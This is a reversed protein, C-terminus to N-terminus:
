GKIGEINSSSPTTTSKVKDLLVKTGNSVNKMANRTQSGIIGDVLLKQGHDTNIKNQFIKVAEKTLEDYSSNNAKSAPLLGLYVFFNNLAIAVYPNIRSGVRIIERSTFFDEEDLDASAKLLNEFRKIKDSTEQTKKNKEAEQTKLSVVDEVNINFNILRFSLISLLSAYMVQLSPIFINKIDNENVVRNIIISSVETLFQSYMENDTLYDRNDKFLAISPNAPFDVKGDGIRNIKQYDKGFEIVIKKGFSFKSTIVYEFFGALRDYVDTSKILDSFKFPSSIFNKPTISVYDEEVEKLEMADIEEYVSKLSQGKADNTLSETAGKILDIMKLSSLSTLTKRLINLKEETKFDVGKSANLFIESIKPYISSINDPGSISLIAKRVEEPTKSKNADALIQTNIKSIEEETELIRKQIYAIQSEILKFATSNDAKDLGMVDKLSPIASIINNHVDDSKELDLGEFLKDVTLNFLKYDADKDFITTFDKSIFNGEFLRTGNKTKNNLNSFLM